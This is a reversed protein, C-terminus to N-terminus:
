IPIFMLNWPHKKLVDMVNLHGYRVINIVVENVIPMIDNQCLNWPTKGLEEVIHIHGNNCAIRLAFVRRSLADGRCLNWPTKGLIRLVDINGYYCANHLIQTIECRMPNNSPNYGCIYLSHTPIDVCRKVLNFPNYMIKSIMSLNKVSLARHSMLTQYKTFYKLLFRCVVENTDLSEKGTFRYHSDNDIINIIPMALSEPAALALSMLDDSSLNKVRPYRYEVRPLIISRLIWRSQLQYDLDSIM